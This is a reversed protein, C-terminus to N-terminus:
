RKWEELTKGHKSRNCAFCSTALNEPENSGGKSIPIVHDCELRGGREGCYRCTYDDRAYIKLRLANWESAPLRRNRLTEKRRKRAVIMGAYKSWNHVEFGDPEVTDIFGIDLMATFFDAADGDWQAAEAIVSVDYKSLDGDQAFDMCWHWFLHLHGVTQPVGIALTRALRKTKPHNGVAQHSQIWM